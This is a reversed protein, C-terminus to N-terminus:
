HRLQPELHRALHHLRSLGSGLRQRSLRGRDPQRASGDRQRTDGGRGRSRRTHFPELAPNAPIPTSEGQNGSNTRTDVMRQPSDLLVVQDDTTSVLYGVADVIVNTGTAGTVDIAGQCGTGDAAVGLKVIAFNAIANEVTDFNVNSTAPWPTCAPYASLWGDAPYGVATLNVLVATANAPIGGNGALTFRRYSSYGNLPQGAGQYGSGSRTDVVRVPQPLLTVQSPYDYGTVQATFQVDASLNVWGDFPSPLGTMDRVHYEATGRAPVSATFTYLTSGNKDVFDHRVSIPSATGNGLSYISMAGPGPTPAVSPLWTAMARATGGTLRSGVLLLAILLAIRLSLHRQKM